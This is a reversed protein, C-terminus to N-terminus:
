GSNAFGSKDLCPHYCGCKFCYEFHYTDIKSNTDLIDTIERDIM